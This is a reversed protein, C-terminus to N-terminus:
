VGQLLARDSVTIQLRSVHMKIKSIGFDTGLTTSQSLRSPNSLATWKAVASSGPRILMPDILFQESVKAKGRGAMEVGFAEVIDSELRTSDNSDTIAFFRIRRNGAASNVQLNTTWGRGGASDVIDPILQRKQYENDKLVALKAPHQQAWFIHVWITMQGALVLLNSSM